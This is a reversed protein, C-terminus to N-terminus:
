EKGLEFLLRQAEEMLPSLLMPENMETERFSALKDIFKQINSIKGKKTKLESIKNQLKAYARNFGKVIYDDREQERDKLYESPPPNIVKIGHKEYKLLATAHDIILDFRSAITDVNASTEVIKVSDNIIRMRNPVDMILIRNCTDCVKNRTLKLFIGSRGCMKCKAM